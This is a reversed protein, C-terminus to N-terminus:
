KKTAVFALTALDFAVAFRWALSTSVELQLAGIRWVAATTAESIGLLSSIDVHGVLEVLRM